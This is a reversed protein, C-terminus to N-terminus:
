TGSTQYTGAGRSYQGASRLELSRTRSLYSRVQSPYKVNKVDLGTTRPVAVRRRTAAEVQERLHATGWDVEVIM